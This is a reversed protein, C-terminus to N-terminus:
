QASPSRMKVGSQSQLLAAATALGVVVAVAAAVEVAIEAAYNSSRKKNKM